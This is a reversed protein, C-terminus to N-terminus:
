RRTGTPAASGGPAPGRRAARGDDALVDRAERSRVPLVPGPQVEREVDGDDPQRDGHEARVPGVVRFQRPHLRGVGPQHRRGPQHRAAGVTRGGVGEDLVRRRGRGLEPGAAASSVKAASSRPSRRWRTASTAARPAVARRASRPGRAPRSRSRTSCCRARGRAPAGAARPSRRPRRRRPRRGPGPPGATGRCPPVRRPRSGRDRATARRRATRRAAPTSPSPSPVTTRNRISWSAEYGLM